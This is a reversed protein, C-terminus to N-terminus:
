ESGSDSETIHDLGRCLERLSEECIELEKGLWDMNAKLMERQDKYKAKTSGYPEEPLRCHCTYAALASTWEEHTKKLSWFTHRIEKATESIKELTPGVDRIPGTSTDWRVDDILEEIADIFATSATEIKEPFGQGIALAYLFKSIAKDACVSTTPLPKVKKTPNPPMEIASDNQQPITFPSPVHYRLLISFRSFSSPLPLFSLYHSFSVSTRPMGKAFRAFGRKRGHSALEYGTFHM